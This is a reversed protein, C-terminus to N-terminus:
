CAGCNCAASCASAPYGYDCATCPPDTHQDNKM